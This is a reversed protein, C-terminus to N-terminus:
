LTSEEERHKCYAPINQEIIRRKKVIEIDAFREPIKGSLYYEQVEQNTMPEIQSLKPPKKNYKYKYM